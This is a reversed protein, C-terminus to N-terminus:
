GQGPHLGPLVPQLGAGILTSFSRSSVKATQKAGYDGDIWYEYDTVTANPNVQEPIFYLYRSITGWEGDTNQARFNLFHVGNSMNGIDVSLNLEESTSKTTTHRSYDSDM